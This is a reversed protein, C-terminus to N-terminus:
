VWIRANGASVPRFLNSGNYYGSERVSVIEREGISAILEASDGVADIVVSCATRGAVAHMAGLLVERWPVQGRRGSAAFACEYVDAGLCKGVKGYLVLVGGSDGHRFVHVSPAALWVRLTAATPLVLIDPAADGLDAHLEDTDEPTCRILEALDDGVVTCTYSMFRVVPVSYPVRKERKFFCGMTRSADYTDECSACHSLFTRGALGRGRHAEAVCLFDVYRTRYSTGHARFVIERSAVCAVTDKGPSEEVFTIHGMACEPVLARILDHTPSYEAGKEQLYNGNVFRWLKEIFRPAASVFSENHLTVDARVLERRCPLACWTCIDYPRLVPFQAAAMHSKWTACVTVLLLLAVVAAAARVAFM